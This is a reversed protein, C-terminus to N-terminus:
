NPLDFVSNLESDSSDSETTPEDRGLKIYVNNDHSRCHNSFRELDYYIDNHHTYFHTLM